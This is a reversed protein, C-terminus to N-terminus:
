KDYILGPFASCTYGFCDGSRVLTKVIQKMLGLKIHLPPLTIYKVDFM